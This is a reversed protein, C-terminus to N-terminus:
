AAVIRAEPHATQAGPLAKEADERTYLKSKERRNVMSVIPFLGDGTDVPESIDTVWAPWGLASTCEIRCLVASEAHTLKPDNPRVLWTEGIAACPMVDFRLTITRDRADFAVVEASEIEDARIVAVDEYVLNRQVKELAERTTHILVRPQGDEGDGAEVCRGLSCRVPRPTETQINTENNM